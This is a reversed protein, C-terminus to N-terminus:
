WSKKFSFWNDNILNMGYAIIKKRRTSSTQEVFSSSQNLWEVVGERFNSNWKEFNTPTNEM